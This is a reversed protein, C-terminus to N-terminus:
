DPKKFIKQLQEQNSAFLEHYNACFKEENPELLIEVSPAVGEKWPPLDTGHYRCLTNTIMEAIGGSGRCTPALHVYWWHIKPTVSLDGSIAKDILSKIHILIDPIQEKGTHLWIGSEKSDGIYDNDDRGFWYESQRCKHEDTRPCFIYQTLPIPKDDIFGQVLGFRFGGGGGTTYFKILWRKGSGSTEEIFYKEDYPIKLARELAYGYAMSTHKMSTFFSAKPNVEPSDRRLGFFESKKNGRRSAISHREREFHNIINSSKLDGQNLKKVAGLVSQEFERDWDEPDGYHVWKSVDRQAIHKGIVSTSANASAGEGTSILRVSTEQRTIAEQKDAAEQASETEMMGANIQRTGSTTPVTNM